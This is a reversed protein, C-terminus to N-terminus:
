GGWIVWGALLGLAFSLMGAGVALWAREYTM